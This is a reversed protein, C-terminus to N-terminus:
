KRFHFEVALGFRLKKKLFDRNRIEPKQLWFETKTSGNKKKESIM